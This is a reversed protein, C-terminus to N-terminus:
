HRNVYFIYGNPTHYMLRIFDGSLTAYVGTPKTQMYQNIADRNERSQALIAEPIRPFYYDISCFTEWEDQSNLYLMNRDSGNSYVLKGRHMYLNNMTWRGQYCGMEKPDTLDYVKIIEGDEDLILVGTECLATEGYDHYLVAFGGKPLPVARSIGRDEIKLNISRLYKFDSSYFHVSKAGKDLLAQIADEDINVFKTYIDDILLINKSNIERKLMKLNYIQSLIVKRINM